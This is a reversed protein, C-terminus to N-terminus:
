QQQQQQAQAQAQAQAYEQQAQAQAQAQAYEQQAQAQPQAAYGQCKIDGQNSNNWSEGLRQFKIKSFEECDENKDPHYIMSLKHYVKKEDICDPIPNTKSKRKAICDDGGKQARAPAQAGKMQRYYIIIYIIIM